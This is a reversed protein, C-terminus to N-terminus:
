KSSTLVNSFEDTITQCNKNKLPIDWLFKSYDDIIVILGKNNSVKYDVM